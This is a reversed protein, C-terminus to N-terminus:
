WSFREKVYKCLIGEYDMGDFSFDEAPSLSVGNKLFLEKNGHSYFWSQYRGPFQVNKIDFFLVVKRMLYARAMDGFSPHFPGAVINKRLEVPVHLGLRIVKVGKCELIALMDATRELSEQLTLPIYEGKEMMRYLETNKFVLTPHIRATDVGLDAVIKASRTDSECTSEPLGTM